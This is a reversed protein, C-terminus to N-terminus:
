IYYSFISMHAVCAWCFTFFQSACVETTNPDNYLALRVAANTCTIHFKWTHAVCAGCFTFFHSACVETQAQILIYRYNHLQMEINLIFINSMHVVCAWFFVLVPIHASWYTGADIYIALQVATNTYTIHFQKLHTCCPGFFFIFGPICTSWYM